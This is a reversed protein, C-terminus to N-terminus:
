KKIIRWKPLHLCIGKYNIGNDDLHKRLNKAHNWVRNRDGIYKHAEPYKEILWRMFRKGAARLNIYELWYYDTYGKTERIIKEIDTLGPIIPSIFVYTNLGCENLIKLAEIRKYNSPSYPEVIEKDKGDFTNITLGIRINKFERFIEIDRIVLHSKTLISLEIWKDMNRLTERTHNLKKEIPQYPDSVSCMLVEGYVYKNRILNPINKKIVVWSGWEGYPYFRNMFKAYCYLCAHQCGVYHNLVWDGGPIKTRTFPNVAEAEYIRTKM